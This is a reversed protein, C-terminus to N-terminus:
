EPKYQLANIVQNTLHVDELAHQNLRCLTRSRIQKLQTLLGTKPIKSSLLNGPNLENDIGTRTYEALRKALEVDGFMKDSQDLQKVADELQKYSVSKVKGLIRQHYDRAKEDLHDTKLTAVAERGQPGGVSMLMTVAMAFHEIDGKTELVKKVADVSRESGLEVLLALFMKQHTEYSKDDLRKVLHDEVAPGFAGYLLVRISQAPLRVLHPAEFFEIGRTSAAFIRDIEPLVRADGFKSLGHALKVLQQYNLEILRDKPDIRKFAALCVEKKTQTDEKPDDASILFFATDLIFFQDPKSQKLEQHLERIVIPVSEARNERLLGWVGDMMKSLRILEERDDSAQIGRLKKLGAMVAAEDGSVAGASNLLTTLVLLWLRFLRLHSSPTDM